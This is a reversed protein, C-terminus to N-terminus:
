VLFSSMSVRMTKMQVKSAKYSIKVEEEAQSAEMRSSNNWTMKITLLHKLGMGTETPSVIIRSDTMAVLLCGKMMTWRLNMTEGLSITMQEESVTTTAMEWIQRSM